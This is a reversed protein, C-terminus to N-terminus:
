SGGSQAQPASGGGDTVTSDAASTSTATETTEATGTTATTAATDAHAIFAVAGSGVIGGAALAATIM